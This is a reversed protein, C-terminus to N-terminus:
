RARARGGPAVLGSPDFDDTPLSTLYVGIARRDEVSLHAYGDRIKEGMINESDTVTGDPRTGTALYHAIDDVTWTGLGFALDPTLNPHVDGKAPNAGGALLHRERLGGTPGRPTHCQDCYAVAHVLYRGRMWDESREPAEPLPGRRFHLGRWLSRMGPLSYPFRVQHPREETQVAPQSSVYVWLAHVDDDSMRTYAMTPFTPWYRRGDPARGRRLAREFDEETWGGIGTAPDPSINPAWFVGFVTPLDRGGGLHEADSFPPSHCGICSAVRFLEAGRRMVEDADDAVPPMPPEADIPREEHRLHVPAAVAVSSVAWLLSWLM